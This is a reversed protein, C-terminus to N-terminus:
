FNDRKDFFTRKIAYIMQTIYLYAPYILAIYFMYEAWELECNYLLYAWLFLSLICLLAVGYNSKLFKLM